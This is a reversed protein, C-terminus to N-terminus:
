SEENQEGTLYELVWRKMQEVVNSVVFFDCEDCDCKCVEVDDCAVEKKLIEIVEEKTM